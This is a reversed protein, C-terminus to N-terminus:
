ASQSTLRTALSERDTNSLGQSTSLSPSPVGSEIQSSRPSGIWVSGDPRRNLGNNAIRHSSMSPLNFRFACPFRDCRTDNGPAVWVGGSATMSGVTPPM